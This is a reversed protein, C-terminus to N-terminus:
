VREDIHPLINKKDPSEDQSPEPRKKLRKGDKEDPKVKKAAIVPLVPAVPPIEAM